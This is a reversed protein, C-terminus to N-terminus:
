RSAPPEPVFVIPRECFRVIPEGINSLWAGSRVAPTSAVLLTARSRELAPELPEYRADAVAGDFCAALMAAYQMAASGDLPPSAHVVLRKFADAAPPAEKQAHVILLPGATERLVREAVSGLWWRSLGRRGHTGMVVLDASRSERLITEVPADDDVVPTFAGAAHRRGFDVLFDTARARHSARSDVAPSAGSTMYPPIDSAGAHLLRLSAGCREALASGIAVARSSAEGFDVAILIAHPREAM